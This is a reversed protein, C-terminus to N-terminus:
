KGIACMTQYQAPGSVTAAAAFATAPAVSAAALVTASALSASTLASAPRSNWHPASSKAPPVTTWMLAPMAPRTPAIMIPLRTPKPLSSIAGWESVMVM